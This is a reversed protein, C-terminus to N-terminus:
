IPRKPRDAPAPEFHLTVDVFREREDRQVEARTKGLNDLEGKVQELFYAPYSADFPAGPKMSWLKRIHPETQIDLGQITLRGFRYEPGEDVSVELHVKKEADDIRRTVSAKANLYGYRNATQELRKLLAAEKRSDFVERLELEQVLKSVDGRSAKIEGFAYPPPEEIRARVKVGILEPNKLIRVAEVVSFKVRVLGKQEYLPRLAADLAQLFRPESWITGVVSTFMLTRLETTTIAQNGEFEVDAITARSSNPRFLIVTERAEPTFFAKIRPKDKPWQVAQEIAQVYRAFLADNLPVQDRYLPLAAKLKEHLAADDLPLEEFRVPYLPSSEKVEFTVQCTPPAANQTVFEYGAFDFVGASALRERAAEIDKPTVMGGPQLGGLQLIEAETFRSHGKVKQATLKMAAPVPPKAPQVGKAAPAVPSKASRTQPTQALLLPVLMLLSCFRMM